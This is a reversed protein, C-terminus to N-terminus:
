AAGGRKFAYGLVGGALIIWIAYIDSYICACLAAGFFLVTWVDKLVRRGMRIVVSAMVATVGVSLGKFAANVWPNTRFEQYFLSVVILVILSPLTVGVTASVAGPVGAVRYGTMVSSNIAIVGPLSQSVAIIDIMENEAIWKKKGSFEREIISVMALGGGFTIAGIKFTSLFLDLLQKWDTKRKKEM